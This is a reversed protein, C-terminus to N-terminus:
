LLADADDPRSQLAYRHSDLAVQLLDVLPAPNQALLRPQQTIQYQVRARSQTLLYMYVALHYTEKLEHLTSVYYKSITRWTSHSHSHVYDRRTSM